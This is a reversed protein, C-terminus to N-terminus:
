TKVDEGANMGGGWSNLTFEPSGFPVIAYIGPGNFPM